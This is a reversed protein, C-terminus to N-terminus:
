AAPTGPYVRNKWGGGQGTYHRVASAITAGLYFLSIIPLAAGWLPSRQYRRLTPQFTLAMALWSAAGLIRSMGHAFLTFVPPALYILSMGLVCGLLMIPSHRLQVYATRAIMNWIEQWDKYVRTSTASEAHGLWIRGGTSKIEKALACDDILHHRIHSVGDIRDIAARSVLMAGGAAGATQRAPDNVWDFPYLMQFFFVFAPILAREAATECHLRVMESTLDLHDAEAKTALQSIHNPAHVIDADTLLNYQAQQAVPHNLGQHVAWLKGSWGHPLPSGSIVHLRNGANLSAAIAGTGDTSNDDVLIISLKGTYHQALLSTLCERISEAENRAPVIVAIAANGCPTAADLTQSTSWLRGHLVVLYIWILCSLAAIVTIM